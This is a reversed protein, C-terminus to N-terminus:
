RTLTLRKLSIVAWMRIVKLPLVDATPLVFGNSLREVSAQPAVRAASAFEAAVRERKAATVVVEEIAFSQPQTKAIPSLAPESRALDKVADDLMFNDPDPMQYALSVALVLLAASSLGAYVWRSSTNEVHTTNMTKSGVTSTNPTLRHVEASGQATASKEKDVHAKEAQTQDADHDVGAEDFAQMAAALAKAKAAPDPTADTQKFLDKLDDDNM